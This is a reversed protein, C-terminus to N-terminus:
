SIVIGRVYVREIKLDAYSENLDKKIQSEFWLLGEQGNLASRDSGSIVKTITHKLFSQGRSLTEVNSGDEVVISISLRVFQGNDLMYGDEELHYVREWEEEGTLDEYASLITDNPIVLFVVAILFFLFVSLSGVILLSKGRRKSNKKNNSSKKSRNEKAREIAEEADMKM